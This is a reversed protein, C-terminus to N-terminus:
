DFLSFMMLKGDQQRYEVAFQSDKVKVKLDGIYVRVGPYVNREVVIKADRSNEVIQELYRLEERDATLDAQKVIKTRLLAVRRPDNKLDAGNEISIEEFRKLGMEIKKVEETISTIDNELEHIRALVQRSVGAHIETDIESDNGISNANVGKVAYLAGGVIASKNGEVVIMDKSSVQCGYFSAANIPGDADITCYELFKANVAGKSEIKGRHDGMMGGRITLDKGCVITCAEALGDITINGTARISIGSAVNGHIIVDGKFDINGVTMDADGSIEYVNSIVIRDAVFEIKGDMDSTYTSGDESRTFGKGRLPIQPRGRKAILVKGKVSMGNQGQVPEHYKAIIQGPTVLEVSNISWYDVTGDERITPKKDLDTNFLYEFYGDKGDIQKTGNAVLIEQNFLQEDVIKLLTDQDIGARVGADNLFQMIDAIKISTGADPRPITIWAEMEDYSIRVKPKLETLTDM